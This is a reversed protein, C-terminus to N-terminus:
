KATGTLFYSMPVGNLGSQDSILTVKMMPRKMEVTYGSYLGFILGSKGNFTNKFLDYNASAIDARMCWQYGDCDNVFLATDYVNNNNALIEIDMITGILYIPTGGLGNESALSNYKAFDAYTFGNMPLRPATASKAGKDPNTKSGYKKKLQAGSYYAGTKPTAAEVSTNMLFIAALTVAALKYLMMFCKKKGTKVQETM